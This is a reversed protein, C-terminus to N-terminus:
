PHSGLQERGHVDATRVLVRDGDKVRQVGEVLLRDTPELGREVVFAGNLKGTPEIRRAQVRGDAGVLYVYIHEQVEITSRQSVLLADRSPLRLAVQGVSGHRLVNRENKFRARFQIRGTADDVESGVADISGPAGFLEGSATRFSVPTAEKGAQGVLELFDQEPVHFYVYVEDTNNITALLEDEAVMSGVKKEIRNIVGDFPARVQAFSVQLAALEEQARAEEVRAALAAAKAELLVVEAESVVDGQLGLANHHELRAARLEAAASQGAAQAKLLEKEQSRADLQFLLQGKRVRRGEDTGVTEIIGKTRARVEVRQSARVTGAYTRELFAPAPTPSTVQFTPLAAPPELKTCAAGGFVAM